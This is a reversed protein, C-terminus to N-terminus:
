KPDIVIYFIINDISINIWYRSRFGGFDLEVTEVVGKKLDVTKSSGGGIVDDSQQSEVSIFVTKDRDSVLELVVKNSLGGVASVDFDKLKVGVSSYADHLHNIEFTDTSRTYTGSYYDLPIDPTRYYQYADIIDKRLDEGFELVIGEGLHTDVRCLRGFESDIRYIDTGIELWLTGYQVPLDYTYDDIVDDSIKEVTEGTKNANKLADSIRDVIDCQSLTKTGIGGFSYNLFKISLEGEVDPNRNGIMFSFVTWEDFSNGMPELWVRLNSWYYINKDPDLQTGDLDMIRKLDAYKMGVLNITSLDVYTDSLALGEEKQKFIVTVESGDDLIFNFYEHGVTFARDPLGIREVVEYVNLGPNEKLNLFDYLNVSKEEFTRLNVVNKSIGDLEGVCRQGDYSFFVYGKHVICNRDASSIRELTNLDSIDWKETESETQCQTESEYETETNTDTETETNPHIETTMESEMTTDTETEIYTEKETDTRKETDTESQRETEGQTESQGMQGQTGSVEDQTIRDCSLLGACIVLCLVIIGIKKM